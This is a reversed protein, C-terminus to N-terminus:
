EKRLQIVNDVVESLQPDHDIIIIQKLKSKAKLGKIMEFYAKRNPSDLHTTGEDIIMLPFAESFLDHLAIHLSIGVMIEQGGSVHPLVRDQDDLLEIKFNDAVRASYPIDFLELNSQLHDTVIDAYSMILKRPFQSTHLVDYAKQLVAVYANRKKNKAQNDETNKIRTEISKVEAQKVRYDISLQQYERVINTNQELKISLENLETREDDGDYVQIAKIERDLNDLKAEWQATKVNNDAEESKLEKYRELVATTQQLTTEDFTVDKLQALSDRIGEEQWLVKDYHDIHQTIDQKKASLLNFDMECDAFKEQAILYENKLIEIHSLVDVIAQKCTPCCAQGKLRSFQTIENALKSVNSRAEYHQKGLEEKQKSLEDKEIVYTNYIEKSFPYELSNLETELRLKQAYIGKHQLLMTNMKQYKDIDIKLKENLHNRKWYLDNVKQRAEDYATLLIARKGDGSMCGQIFAIRQRINEIENDSLRYLNNLQIDLDVVEYDLTAKINQLHLLDEEPVIPPAQKLYDNWIMARMKETPPVLFIRQFVKERVAPDGSFLQPIHGQQAIIVKKIIDANLQLLKEWLEKVETSKKYEVGDYKLIVKSSDLHRELRGKKGNLVFAGAVYGSDADLNIAEAKTGEFLEGTLLFQIGEIVTSKGTGNDGIIGTVGSKLKIHLNTLRRFNTFWLDTLTM